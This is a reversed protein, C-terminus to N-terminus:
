NENINSPEANVPNISVPGFFSEKLELAFLSRTKFNSCYSVERTSDLDIMNTM